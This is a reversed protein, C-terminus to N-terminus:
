TTRQRGSRGKNLNLSTGANLYKRVNNLITSKVPLNRDLFRERFTNQAVVISQSQIYIQVIFARQETTLQVMKTSTTHSILLKVM